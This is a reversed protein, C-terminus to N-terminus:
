THTQIEAHCSRRALSRVVFPSCAASINERTSRSVGRMAGKVHSKMRGGHACVPAQQLSYTKLLMRLMAWTLKPTLNSCISWNTDSTEVGLSGANNQRTTSAANGLASFFQVCLYSLASFRSPDNALARWFLLTRQSQLQHSFPKIPVRLQEDDSSSNKRARVWSTPTSRAYQLWQATHTQIDMYISNWQHSLPM